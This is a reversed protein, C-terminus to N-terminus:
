HSVETVCAEHANTHPFVIPEWTTDVSAMLGAILGQDLSCVVEPHNIATQGFPCHSTVLRSEDVDAEMQFGMGTMAMAVARVSQPFEEDTPLGIEDALAQGHRFGIDRAVQSAKDPSLEKIVELLLTTLLDMRRSPYHLEIEKTTSTYYKAPRGAGPGTRGSPRKRTVTLYDDTALRDLHHRAVNAHIGFMESIQGVTVPDSSERVAIYIGRRTADGLSGTLEGVEQDFKTADMRAADTTM